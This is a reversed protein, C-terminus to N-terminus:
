SGSTISVNICIWNKARADDHEKRSIFGLSFLCIPTIARRSNIDVHLTVTSVFSTSVQCPTIGTESPVGFWVLEDKM